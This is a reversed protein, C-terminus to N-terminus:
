RDSPTYDVERWHKIAVKYFQSTVMCRRRGHLDFPHKLNTEVFYRDIIGDDANNGLLTRLNKGAEFLDRERNEISSIYNVSALPNYKVWLNIHYLSRAAFTFSIISAWTTVSRQFFIICVWLFLYGLKEAKLVFTGSISILLFNFHTPLYYHTNTTSLSIVSDIIHIIDIVLIMITATWKLILVYRSSIQSQHSWFGGDELGDWTAQLCKKDEKVEEQEDKAYKKRTPIAWYRKAPIEDLSQWHSYYLLPDHDCCSTWAAITIGDAMQTQNENSYEQLELLNTDELNFIKQLNINSESPRRWLSIKIDSSFATSVSVILHTICIM